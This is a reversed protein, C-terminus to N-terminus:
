AVTVDATGGSVSVEYYGDGEIEIDFTEEDEVTEELVPGQMLGNMMGMVDGQDEMEEASREADYQIEVDVAGDTQADVTVEYEDGESAEFSETEGDELEASLKEGGFICGALAVTATTAVTSQIFTRREM